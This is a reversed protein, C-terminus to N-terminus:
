FFENNKNIKTIQKNFEANKQAIFLSKTPKLTREM